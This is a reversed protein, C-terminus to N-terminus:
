TQQLKPVNAVVLCLKLCRPVFHLFGSSSIEPKSHHTTVNSFHQALLSVIAPEQDLTSELIIHKIKHWHPAAIGRLVELELGEVDIKLLDIDDEVRLADLLSSLSLAPVQISDMEDAGEKELNAIGKTLATGLETVGEELSLGLGILQTQLGALDEKLLMIDEPSLQVTTATDPTPNELRAKCWQACALLTTTQKNRHQELCSNEGPSSCSTYLTMDDESSSRTLAAPVTFIAAGSQAHTLKSCSVPRSRGIVALPSTGLSQCNNLQLNHQLFQNSIPTPEVAVITSLSHCRSLLQLSFLGISAGGDVAVKVSELDLTHLYAELTFIEDYIMQFEDDTGSPCEIHLDSASHCDLQIAM